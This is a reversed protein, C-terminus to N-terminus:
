GLPASARALLGPQHGRSLAGQSKQALRGFCASVRARIAPTQAHGIAWRYADVRFAHIALHVDSDSLGLCKQFERMEGSLVALHSYLWAPFLFVGGLKDPLCLASLPISIEQSYTRSHGLALDRAEPGFLRGALTAGLIPHYRGEPGDLDACAVYGLDHCFIAGSQKINPVARYVLLWALWVALPHLIFQHVGFLLAKTGLKM